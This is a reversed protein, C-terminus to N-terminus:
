HIDALREHAKKTFPSNPFQSILSQFTEAAKEKSEELFYSEGKYYLVEDRFYVAPYSKLIDDFRTVASHYSGQKFYFKAIGLDHAALKNRCYIIKQLVDRFHSSEPFALLFTEFDQIAEQTGSQDRNDPRMRLFSSMGIRYMVTDAQSYTPYLELFKMYQFRSEEFEENGYYADALNLLADRRLDSDPYEDIIKQFAEQAKTFDGSKYVQTGFVYYDQATERLDRKSISCATGGLMWFMLAPFLFVSFGKWRGITKEPQVPKEVKSKVGIKKWLYYRGAM